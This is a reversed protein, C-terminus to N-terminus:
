RQTEKTKFLTLLLPLLTLDTLLAIMLSITMFLGLYYTAGFSSLIFLSFGSVIILTTLIIAKGASKYTTLLKDKTSDNKPKNFVALFHITDDVAIGFTVAFIVSTTLKLPAGILGMFGAVALLPIINPILSILLTKVSRFYIGLILSIILIGIILGKILNYSLVEHSKDILYTTGTLRTQLIESDINQEIFSRLQDNKLNTEHSGYEPIFAAIRGYSNDHSVNPLMKRKLLQQLSRITRQYSDSEPIEFAANLGGNNIQSSLKVLTAPSVLREMPYTNYLYQDIKAIERIVREDYLSNTSDAPWVALEWPKSGGLEQDVYTFDQRVQSDEPLDKLLYADTKLLYIGYCSVGILLVWFFAIKKQNGLVWHGLAELKNSRIEPPYSKKILLPGFAFTVIFAICIGLGAFLGLEQIPTTDLTWLSFFGVATTVSTLLTPILIKQIASQLRRVHDNESTNRFANILHISDSTSVFLIVPPILSGLITISFGLLSMIGLLWILSTLSILYPMLAIKLSRFIVILLGFSLVLAAALFLVFDNQIYGVFSEQAIVKGAMRYNLGSEELQELLKQNLVKSDNPDLLHKHNIQVLLSKADKSLFNRFVPHEVIKLSDSSYRNSDKIHILPIPTYGMPGKVPLQANVLSFVTNISEMQEISESLNLTQELFSPQFVGKDNTLVLILYDNDYDFKQLHNAYFDIDPDDTPFFKEFEFDAKLSTM